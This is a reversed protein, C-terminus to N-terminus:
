RRIGALCARYINRPNEPFLDAHIRLDNSLKLAEGYILSLKQGDFLARLEAPGFQQQM